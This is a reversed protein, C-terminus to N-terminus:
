RKGDAVGALKKWNRAQNNMDDSTSLINGDVFEKAVSALTRITKKTLQAMTYLKNDTIFGMLEKYDDFARMNFTCEVSTKLKDFEVSTPLHSTRLAHLLMSALTISKSARTEFSDNSEALFDGTPESGDPLYELSEIKSVISKLTNLEKADLPKTVSNIIRLPDYDSHNEYVSILDRLSDEGIRQKIALIFRDFNTFAWSKEDKIENGVPDIIGAKYADTDPIDQLIRKAVYSMVSNDFTQKQDKYPKHKITLSM